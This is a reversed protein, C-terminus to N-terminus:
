TRSPTRPVCSITSSCWRPARTSPTPPSRMPTPTSRRARARRWSTSRRRTTSWARGPPLPLRREVHPAGLRRRQGHQQHRRLLLGPLYKKQSILLDKIDDLESAEATNVDYGLRLARWREPGRGPRRPHVRARPGRRELPGGLERDDDLGQRHASASGEDQLGHLPSNVASGADYWPQNFYSGSYFVQDANKLSPPTSPASSARASSSSWGSPSRSSSTTSTAPRSSQRVHGGDLRLQVRHGRRRVGRRSAKSSARRRPLRGLQLLHPRRRDEGQGFFPAAPRRRRTTASTTCGPLTLRRAWRWAARDPSGRRRPDPSDHGLRPDQTPEAKSPRRRASAARRPRGPGRRAPRSRAARRPSGSTPSAPWSGPASATPSRWRCTEAIM